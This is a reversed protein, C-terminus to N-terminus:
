KAYHSQILQFIQPLYKVRKRRPRLLILGCFTDHYDVPLCEELKTADFAEPGLPQELLELAIRLLVLGWNADGKLAKEQCHLSIDLASQFDNIALYEVHKVQVIIPLYRIM